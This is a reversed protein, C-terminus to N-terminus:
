RRPHSVVAHLHQSITLYGQDGALSDFLKSKLARVDSHRHPVIRKNIPRDKPFPNGIDPPSVRLGANSV